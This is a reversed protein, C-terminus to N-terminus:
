PLPRPPLVPTVSPLPTSDVQLVAPTLTPTPRSQWGRWQWIGLGILIMLSILGALLLGLCGWRLRQWLVKFPLPLSQAEMLVITINDHGGRQNALAVLAELAARLSDAQRLIALIEDAQVLDTLGDSCLLVQDGPQLPLGQNVLQAADDEGAALHLRQDVEPPTPSGLFRRIIHANPHGQAQDSRLLGHEIAEQVWTHDTSLQLIQEGRRLYIRSDGVTATYLRNGIIWACAVTAGMGQLATQASAQQYIFDSAQQIAVRLDVLPNLANSEALRQSIYTVALEAAVEGGRHGGIGDSLIALLVSTNARDPLRYASVAFRDENNKGTM